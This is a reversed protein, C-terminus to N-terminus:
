EKWDNIWYLPLFFWWTELQTRWHGILLVSQEICKLLLAESACLVWWAPSLFAPLAGSTHPWGPISPFQASVVPPHQWMGSAPATLCPSGPSPQGAPTRVTSLLARQGTFSMRRQWRLCAVWPPTLFVHVSQREGVSWHRESSLGAGSVTPGPAWSIYNGSICLLTPSHIQCSAPRSATCSMSNKFEGDDRLM